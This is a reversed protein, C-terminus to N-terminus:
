PTTVEQEPHAQVTVIQARGVGVDIDFRLEGASEGDVFATLPRALSLGSDVDDVPVPHDLHQAEILLDNMLDWPSAEGARDALLEPLLHFIPNEEGGPFPHGAHFERFADMYDEVSNLTDDGEFELSLLYGLTGRIELLDRARDSPLPGDYFERVVGAGVDANGAVTINDPVYVLVEGVGLSVELSRTTGDPELDRLDVVLRGVGHRYESELDGADTIRVRREGIGSGWLADSGSFLVLPATLAVGLLILGRARGAFASVFLGTGTIALAIALFAAIQMDLVDFRGLLMAAGTFVLLVAVTIPGVLSRPRRRSPEGPSESPEGPAPVALAASSATWKPGATAPPPPAPPTFAAPAPPRASTSKARQTPGPWLVLAVGATILLLALYPAISWVDVFLDFLEGSLNATILLGLGILAVALLSRFRHHSDGGLARAIVSRSDERPLALWGILYLFPGAGGLFTLVIFAIRVIVSDIGFYAGIGGAVGAVVKDTSSRCLTRRETAAGEAQADPGEGPSSEEASLPQDGADADPGEGPSPEEPSPPQEDAMTGLTREPEPSDM